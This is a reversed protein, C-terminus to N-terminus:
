WRASVPIDAASAGDRGLGLTMRCWSLIANSDPPLWMSLGAHFGAWADVYETRVATLVPVGVLIAREIVSRLGAGEAEAKGFRNIILLDAGAEIMGELLPAAEALAGPDLRCGRAELGLDQSIRILSGDSLNRLRTIPRSDGSSWDNEQLVGGIRVGRFRLLAVIEAFLMDVSVGAKARVAALAPGDRSM